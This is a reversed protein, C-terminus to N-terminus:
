LNSELTVMKIKSFRSNESQSSIHKTVNSPVVIKTKKKEKRKLTETHSNQDGM